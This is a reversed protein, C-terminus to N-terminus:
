NGYECSAVVYDTQNGTGRERVIHRYSEFLMFIGHRASRRWANSPSFSRTRWTVRQTSARPRSSPFRSRSGRRSPSSYRRTKSMASSLSRFVRPVSVVPVVLVTFTPTPTALCTTTSPWTSVSLISVAVLSMLRLVSESTSTRSSKTASSVTFTNAVLM